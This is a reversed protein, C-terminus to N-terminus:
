PLRARCGGCSPCRGPACSGPWLRCPEANVVGLRREVVWTLLGGLFIPTTLDLPLYIGVAAALVLTRWKAGGAKLYEELAIIAAGIGAGCETMGWPLQGGFLGKSVVGDAHGAARAISESSGADPRMGYAKLLLNLVPAM